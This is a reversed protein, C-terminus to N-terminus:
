LSRRDSAERERAANMARLRDLTVPVDHKRRRTPDGRGGLSYALAGAALAPVVAVFAAALSVGAPVPGVGMAYGMAFVWTAPLWVILFVFGGVILAAVPNRRRQRDPQADM